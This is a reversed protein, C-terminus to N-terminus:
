VSKIIENEANHPIDFNSFELVAEQTSTANGEFLVYASNEQNFEEFGANDKLDHSFVAEPNQWATGYGGPEPTRSFFTPLIKVEKYSAGAVSGDLLFYISGTLFITTLIILFFYKKMM